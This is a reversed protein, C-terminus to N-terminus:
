IDQCKLGKGYGDLCNFVEMESDTLADLVAHILPLCHLGMQDPGVCNARAHRFVSARNM